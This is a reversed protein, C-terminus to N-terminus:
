TLDRFIQCFIETGDDSVTGVLLDKKGPDQSIQLSGGGESKYMSGFTCTRAGPASTTITWRYTQGPTFGSVNQLTFAKSVVVWPPTGVLTGTAAQTGTAAVTAGSGESFPWYSIAPTTLTAPTKSGNALSVLDSSGVAYDFIAMGSYNINAFNSSGRFSALYYNDPTGYDVSGPAPDTGISAGNVFVELTSSGIVMAIQAKADVPLSATNLNPTGPQGTVNIACQMVGTGGTYWMWMADITATTNYMEFCYGTFASLPTFEFWWTGATLPMLGTPSVSMTDNSGDFAVGSEPSGALDLFFTTAGGSADTAVINSGDESLILSEFSAVSGEGHVDEIDGIEAIVEKVAEKLEAPNEKIAASIMATTAPWVAM